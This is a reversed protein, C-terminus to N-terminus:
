FQLPDLSDSIIKNFIRHINQHTGKWNHLTGSCWTNFNIGKDTVSINSGEHLTINGDTKWTLETKGERHCKKGDNDLFMDKNRLFLLDPRDIAFDNLLIKNTIKVLADRKATWDTDKRAIEVLMKQDSIKKIAEWRNMNNKDNLAIQYLQSESTLKKIADDREYIENNVAIQYLIQQDDIKGIAARRVFGDMDTVAITAITKPDTIALTAIRRIYKDKDKTALETLLTQNTLKSIAKSRPVEYLETDKAIGELFAQDEMLQIITTRDNRNGNYYLDKLIEPTAIKKIAIERVSVDNDKFALSNLFKRDELKSVASQRVKSDKDQLLVTKLINQDTIKKVAVDRAHRNVDYLAVKILVEQNTVYESARFRVGDHENHLVIDELKKCAKEDGSSCKRILTGVLKYDKEQSFVFSSGLYMILFLSYVMAIFIRSELAKM